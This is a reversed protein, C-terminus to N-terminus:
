NVNGFPDFLVRVAQILQGLLEGLNTGLRFSPSSEELLSFM